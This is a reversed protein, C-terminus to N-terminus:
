EGSAASSRSRSRLNDAEKGLSRMVELLAAAAEKQAKAAEQMAAASAATDAAIGRTSADTAAVRRGSALEENFGAAQNLFQSGLSASAAESSGIGQRASAARGAAVDFESQATRTLSKQLDLSQRFNGIGAELSAIQKQRIEDSPDLGMSLLGFEKPPGKQVLENRQRLAEALPIAKGNIFVGGATLNEEQAQAQSLKAAAAFEAAELGPLKRRLELAREEAARKANGTATVLGAARRNERDTARASYKAEVGAKARIGGAEDLTGAQVQADIRALENAKNATDENGELRLTREIQANVESLRSEATKAKGAIDELNEALASRKARQEASLTNFVRVISNFRDLGQAKAASEEVVEAFERVKVIALGAAFAIATYPNKLANLAAGLLPVEQGLKKFGDLLGKHEKAFGKTSDGAKKQADDLKKTAATTNDVEKAVGQLQAKEAETIIRIKYDAM